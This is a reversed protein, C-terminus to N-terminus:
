REAFAAEWGAASVSRSISRESIRLATSAYTKPPRRLGQGLGLSEVGRMGNRIERAAQIPPANKKRELSKRSM